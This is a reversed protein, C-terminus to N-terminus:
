FFDGQPKSRHGLFTAGINWVSNKGAGALAQGEASSMSEM